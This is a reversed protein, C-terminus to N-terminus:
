VYVAVQIDPENSANYLDNNFFHDLQDVYTKEGGCLEVLGKVDFPAFWRYQSITGQYMGRAPLDDVDDRTVDSFDGTWYNRWALAKNKYVM